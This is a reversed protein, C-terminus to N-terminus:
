VSGKGAKIQVLQLNHENAIKNYASNRDTVLVSNEAISRSFVKRLDKM